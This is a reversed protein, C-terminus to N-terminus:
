IRRGYVYNFSSQPVDPGSVVAQLQYSSLNLSDMSRGRDDATSQLRLTAGPLMRRTGTWLKLSQWPEQASERIRLEIRDPNVAVKGDNRLNVQFRTGSPQVVLSELRVEAAVSSALALLWILTKM